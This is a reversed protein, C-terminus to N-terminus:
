ANLEGLILEVHHVGGDRVLVVRAATGELVVPEGDATAAIVGRAKRKPNRAHIVYRTAEGPLRVELTFEPWADPICPDLLLFTGGSMRFGLISEVAVRYMWGASGTYWTWGARGVHPSEGYVDAAVVYPEGQYVGVAQASETHRIPNLLDLLRAARNNRRLRATAEVVWLAAHTYQGGNERVGPVYGKIYGPDKATKDFPPTLLRILGDKESVLQGEVADMAQAGREPPAAGSLVSWAQALADIRCEDSTASGLPSGDDYFGRRYWAGDWGADNLAVLLADRYARYREARVDDQRSQCVPLFAGLVSYLFFGLWVSEGQGGRGVRNMGDNWDGSGFLPLGHGGRTLSRDLARCCHQYVDEVEPSPETPLFAEDEEAKLSRARRYPVREDLLSRDGTIEVYSATVFPLWLLDDSFRTRLGRSRPPHWWHLVDGEEFQHAAHLLVQARTKDPWLHVLSAADQLQDRFGFAGGSQYLASRAWLRCALIQYPLWGNVLLDLAPMPSHIRVGAVGERWFDRVEALARQVATEERYRDTWVRVEELNAAEGFLFAVERSGGPPIELVAQQAICPDLKAGCRGDLTKDVAVGAPHSLDGGAGLFARRDGTVHLASPSSSAVAAFVLSTENEGLLNRALMAESPPDFATVVFPAPEEASAGLVLRYFSFLSFRRPRSGPNKVRLWTVKLPDHRPVFATTEVELGFLSARCVSYGWGVRMEYDAAGPSPAPFCSGYDGTAEDRLYFAEGSPDLLPDNAWPTLRHERSNGNWTTGAGTESMLFGFRENAVVNAWPRPPLALHGHHHAVRIVYESGDSSFGGIGNWFSLPEGPLARGGAATGSIETRPVSARPAADTRGLLEPFRDRVVARAAGDLLHLTAEPVDHPSVFLYGDERPDCSSLTEAALVVVRIPLGLANWYRCAKRMEAIPANRDAHFVVWVSQPTLGFRALPGAEFRPWSGPEERLDPWGALVAGGLAQLYTAEEISVELRELEERAHAKAAACGREIWGEVAARRVRERAARRDPAAGILFALSTAEGAGIEVAVRLSLVPDLVSGVTGSLPEGRELGLPTGPKSGRKWFRARDTEFGDLQADIAAHFMWPHRELTTRPRRRVLLCREEPAIETELFLKSFVPHAAHAAPDNLAVDIDTTIELRHPRRTLNRLTLRHVEVDEGPVVWVERSLALDHAEGFIRFVGPQWVATWANGSDAAHSSWLRGPDPERFFFRSGSAGPTLAVGLLSSSGTGEANLVVRYRGDSLVRVWPSSRGSLLPPATPLHSM